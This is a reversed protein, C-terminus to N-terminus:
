LGFKRKYIGIILKKRHKECPREMRKKEAGGASFFKGDRGSMVIKRLASRLFNLNLVKRSIKLKNVNLYLPSCITAVGKSTHLYVFIGKIM